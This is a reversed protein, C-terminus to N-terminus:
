RSAEPVPLPAAPPKSRERLRKEVSERHEQVHRVREDYEGRHTGKLEHEIQRKEAESARQMRDQLAQAHKAQADKQEADRSREELRQRAEDAQIRREIAKHALEEPRLEKDAAIRRERAQMRCNNVDFQQYCAKLAQKYEDDIASRRAQLRADNAQREQLTPLEDAWAGYMALWGLVIVVLHKM